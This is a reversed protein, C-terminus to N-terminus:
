DEPKQAQESGLIAADPWAHVSPVDPLEYRAESRSSDGIRISAGELRNVAGFADEDTVGDGSYVPIRGAFPALALFPRIADGRNQAGPAIEFVMKGAILRFDSGFDVM